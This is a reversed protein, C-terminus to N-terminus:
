CKIPGAPTLMNTGELPRRGGEPALMIVGAPGILHEYRSFRYMIPIYSIM